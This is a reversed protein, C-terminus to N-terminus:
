PVFWKVSTAAVRNNYWSPFNNPDGRADTGYFVVDVTGAAGAIAWPMVNTNAPDGNVQLPTSWSTGANTSVTLYVNNNATDVWAVYVNGAHDTTLSAFLNGVSGGPSSPTNTSSFALNNRQAPNVHAKSVHVHNGQVCPLYLNRLVPDFILRGCPAGAGVFTTTAANIYAFGGVIDTSGTSGPSSLVQSGGPVQRYTLFVTNDLVGTSPGNDIALWQRDDVPSMAAVFNERWSNGQDNSVAIGIHALGELDAFYANGQDDTIIDTDGGGAPAPNPRLGAPSVIHFSDGNDTSRAVFGQATSFGWPGTEWINGAQDVHVLPEGETRQPDVITHAGFSIGGTPFSPNPTPGGTTFALLASGTYGSAVVLFPVTRVEYVGPMPSQLAVQESTTGGSASSGVQQGDSQRYIYLDFDNDNSAWQITIAVSGTHTQWFTNPLNINLYFHDCVLNLTDLSGPCQAPDATFALTYFQGQWSTSPQADTIMNGSPTAARATPGLFPAPGLLM